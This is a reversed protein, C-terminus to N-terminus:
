FRFFDKQKNTLFQGLIKVKVGYYVTFKVTVIETVTVMVVGVTM